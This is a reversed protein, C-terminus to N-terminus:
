RGEFCAIRFGGRYELGGRHRERVCVRGSAGACVSSEDDGRGGDGGERGGISCTAVESIDTDFDCKDFDCELEAGVVGADVSVCVGSCVDWVVMGWCGCV